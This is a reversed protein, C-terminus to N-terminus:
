FNDFFNTMLFQDNFFIEDVFFNKKGFSFKGGLLKKLDSYSTEVSLFFIKFFDGSLFKKKRLDFYTKM